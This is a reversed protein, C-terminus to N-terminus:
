RERGLADGGKARLMTFLM